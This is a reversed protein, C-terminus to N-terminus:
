KHSMEQKFYSDFIQKYQGNDIIHQLGYNLRQLLLKNGKQVAIGYGSSFAKILLGDTQTIVLQQNNTANDVLENVFAQDAFVADINGAQLDAFADNSSLYPIIVTDAASYKILYEQNSSSAQVGISKDAITFAVSKNKKSVFVPPNYYYSDSFDVLSQREPTIDLAAIVADFRGFQLTLLLSEFSQHQFNCNLNSQKCIANAIDIDFGQIKKNEDFYEFPYYYATTAFTVNLVKSHDLATAFSPIFLCCYFLYHQFTNM